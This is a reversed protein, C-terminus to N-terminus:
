CRGAEGEAAQGTEGRRTRGPVGQSNILGLASRDPALCVRNIGVCVGCGASPGLVNESRIHLPLHSSPWWSGELHAWGGHVQFCVHLPYMHHIRAPKEM